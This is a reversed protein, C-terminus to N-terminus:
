INLVEESYTQGSQLLIRYIVCLVVKLFSYLCIFDRFHRKKQVNICFYTRKDNMGRGIM